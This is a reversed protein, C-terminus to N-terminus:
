WRTSRRATARATTRACACYGSARDDVVFDGYRMAGEPTIPEPETGPTVRYVRQDAFNAFYITDGHVAYSRGGYEHVRTRANFPQPTMDATKGQADRQM